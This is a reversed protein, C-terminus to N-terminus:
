QPRHVQSSDLTMSHGALQAEVQSLPQGFHTALDQASWVPTGDALYGSAPPMLGMRLAEQELQARLEPPAKMLVTKFAAFAEPSDEQGARCLRVYEAVAETFEPTEHM